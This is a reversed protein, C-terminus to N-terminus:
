KLDVNWATVFYLSGTKLIEVNQNGVGNSLMWGNKEEDDHRAFFSSRQDWLALYPGLDKTVRLWSLDVVDVVWHAVRAPSIIPM